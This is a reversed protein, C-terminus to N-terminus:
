NWINLLKLTTTLKMLQDHNFQAVSPRHPLHCSFCLNATEPGEYRLCGTLLQFTIVPFLHHHHQCGGSIHWHHNESHSAAPCHHIFILLMFSHALCKSDSGETLLSKYELGLYCYTVVHCSTIDFTGTAIALSGGLLFLKIVDKTRSLISRLM